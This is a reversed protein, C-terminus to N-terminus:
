LNIMGVMLGLTFPTLLCLDTLKSALSIMKLHDDISILIRYFFSLSSVDKATTYSSMVLDMVKIVICSNCGKARKVYFNDGMFILILKVM